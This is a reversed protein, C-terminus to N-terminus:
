AGTAFSDIVSNVVFQVDNDTADNGAAMITANQLVAYKMEAAKAAPNALAQKAWIVRNTHNPTATDENIIDCATRFAAVEVRRWLDGDSHMLYYIDVYEAM